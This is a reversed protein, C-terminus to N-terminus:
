PLVDVSGALLVCAYKVFGVGPDDLAAGRKSMPGVMVLTVLFMSLGVSLWSRMMVACTPCSNSGMAETERLNRTMYLASDDSVMFSLPVFPSTRAPSPM